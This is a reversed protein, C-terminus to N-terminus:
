TVKADQEFRSLYLRNLQSITVYKAFIIAISEM